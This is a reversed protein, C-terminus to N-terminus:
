IRRRFRDSHIVTINSSSYKSKGINIHAAVSFIGKLIMGASGNAMMECNACFGNETVQQIADDTDVFSVDTAAHKESGLSAM